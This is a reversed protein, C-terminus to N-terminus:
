NPWQLTWAVYKDVFEGTLQRALQHDIDTLPTNVLEELTKPYQINAYHGVEFSSVRTNKHPDTNLKQALDRAQDFTWHDNSWFWDHIPHPFRYGYEAYNRDFESSFIMQTNRSIMLPLFNWAAINQKQCWQHTDLIDQPTESGLGIIFSLFFNINKKSWRSQLQSLFERGHRGNWGKGVIKAADEHFSEIGFFTSILGAQELLDIQGPTTALLDPRSYCIFKIDKKLAEKARLLDIIKENSENFTDDIMFYRTTGWQHYNASLEQSLSDGSRLYDSGKRGILRFRCFRCRFKCGRSSELPLFEWPQIHDSLEFVPQAQTIDFMPRTNRSHTLEDLWTLLSDESYDHFIDWEFYNKLGRHNALVHGPGGLLWRGKFTKQIIERAAIVWQPEFFEEKHSWRNLLGGISKSPKWFTSSVGIALTQSSIFKETVAVLQDCSMLSCFDLVKVTIGNHRLWQALRHPGVPRVATYNEDFTNWLVIQTM